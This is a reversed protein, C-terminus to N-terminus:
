VETQLYKHPDATIKAGMVPNTKVFDELPMDVDEGGIKVRLSCNSDFYLIYESETPQEVDSMLDVVGSKDSLIGEKYMHSFLVATCVVDYSSNHAESKESFYTKNLIDALDRSLGYQDYVVQLKRRIGRHTRQYERMVDTMTNPTPVEMDNRQLFRKCRPYDFGVVDYIKTGDIPNDDISVVRTEPDIHQYRVKVYGSNYGVLDASSMVIYMKKLNDEFKDAHQRLFEKSLGNIKFAEETWKTVGEKWFYLTEARGVRLNEDCLMYSFSLIDADDELGSTETDYITYLM